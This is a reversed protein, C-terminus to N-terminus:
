YGPLSQLEDAVGLSNIVLFLFPSNSDLLIDPAHVHVEMLIRIMDRLVEFMGIYMKIKVTTDLSLTREDGLATGTINGGPTWVFM